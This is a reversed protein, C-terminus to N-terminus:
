CHRHWQFFDAPIRSNRSGCGNVTAFAALQPGLSDSGAAYFIGGAAVTGPVVAGRLPGAASLRGALQDASVTDTSVNIRQFVGQSSVGAPSDTADDALGNTVIPGQRAVAGPPGPARGTFRLGASAAAGALSDATAADPVRAAVQALQRALTVDALSVRAQTAPPTATPALTSGDPGPKSGPEGSADTGTGVPEPPLRNGTAPLLKGAPLGTNPYYPTGATGATPM